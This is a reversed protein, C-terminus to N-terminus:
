FPEVRSSLIATLALLLCAVLEESGAPAECPRRERSASWLTKKGMQHKVPGEKGAPAECIEEKLTKGHSGFLIAVKLQCREIWSVM